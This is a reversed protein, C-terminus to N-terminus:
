EDDAGDLDVEFWVLMGRNRREVGWRTARRRVIQLGWGGDAAPTRPAPLTKGKGPDAIEARITRGKQSISMTIRDSEELGGYRYSNTVLESVLLALDTIVAQPLPPKIGAIMRRAEGAAGRTNPLTAELLHPM